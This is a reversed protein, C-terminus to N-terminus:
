ANKVDEESISFNELSVSDSLSGYFTPAGDSAKYVSGLYKAFLNASTQISDSYSDDLRLLSPIYDNARFKNVYSCFAKINVKINM